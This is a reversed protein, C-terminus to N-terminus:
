KVRDIGINGKFTCKNEEGMDAKAERKTQDPRKRKWNWVMVLKTNQGTRKQYPRIFLLIESCFLRFNRRSTQILTYPWNFLYLLNSLKRLLIKNKFVNLFQIENSLIGSYYNKIALFIICNLGFCFFSFFLKQFRYLLFIFSIIDFIWSNNLNKKNYRRQNLFPNYKM